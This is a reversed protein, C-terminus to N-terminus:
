GVAFIQVTAAGATTILAADIFGGSPNCYLFYAGPVLPVVLNDGNFKVTASGVTCKALLVKAGSAALTGLDVVDDTTLVDYVFELSARQTYVFSAALDFGAATQGDELPASIKGTITITKAM